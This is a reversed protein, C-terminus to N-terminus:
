AILEERTLRSSHRPAVGILREPVARIRREIVRGPEIPGSAVVEDYHLVSFFGQLWKERCHAILFSGGPKLIEYVRRLYQARHTPEVLMHLCGMDLALDFEAPGFNKLSLVDDEVFRCTLGEQRARQRGKALAAASIDVATM